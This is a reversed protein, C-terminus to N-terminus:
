SNWNFFELRARTVANSHVHRQLHGQLQQRKPLLSRQRPIPSYRLLGTNGNLWACGEAM